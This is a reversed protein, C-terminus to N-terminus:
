SLVVMPKANSAFSRVAVMRLSEVLRGGPRRKPNGKAEFPATGVKGKAKLNAGKKKVMVREIAELDLLLTRTSKFVTSHNLNHQNQWSMPVSPLEITALDAKGFPINGKKTTPVAKSSDKLTPLHRVNDHLVGM